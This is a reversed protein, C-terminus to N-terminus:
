NCWRLSRSHIKFFFFFSIVTFLQKQCLTKNTWRYVVTFHTSSLLSSEQCISFFFSWTTLYSASRQSSHFNKNLSKFTVVPVWGIDLASSLLSKSVVNMLPVKLPSVMDWSEEWSKRNRQQRGRMPWFVSQGFFNDALFRINIIIKHQYKIENVFYRKQIGRCKLWKKHLM